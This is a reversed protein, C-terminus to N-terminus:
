HWVLTHGRLLLNNQRAFEVLFDTEDFRYERPGVWVESPKFANEAVVGNFERVLTERYREEGGRLVAMNVATGLILGSADAYERLGYNTM